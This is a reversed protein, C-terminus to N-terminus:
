LKKSRLEQWLIKEAATMNQRLLRSIETIKQPVSYKM